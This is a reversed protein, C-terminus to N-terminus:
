WVEKKVTKYDLEVVLDERIEPGKEGPKQVKNKTYDLGFMTSDMM